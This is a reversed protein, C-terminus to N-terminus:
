KRTSGDQASHEQKSQENSNGLQNKTRLKKPGVIDTKIQAIRVTSLGFAESVEINTVNGLLLWRTIATRRLRGAVKILERPLTKDAGNHLAMTHMSKAVKELSDLEHAEFLMAKLKNDEGLDLIQARRVRHEEVKKKLEVRRARHEALQLQLKENM